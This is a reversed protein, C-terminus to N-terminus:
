SQTASMVYMPVPAPKTYRATTNSAQLRRTTPQAMAECRRVSNTM